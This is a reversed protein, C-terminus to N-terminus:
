ANTDGGLVMGISSYGIFHHVQDTADRRFERFYNDKVGIRMNFDGFWFVFGADGVLTRTNRVQVGNYQEVMGAGLSVYQDFYFVKDMSFRFKGYLLNAGIQADYRKTIFAADPFVEEDEWLRKSSSNLTNYVKSGSVTTYIRDNFFYYLAGGAEKSDVFSSGNTTQGAMLSFGYANTLPRLRNQIVYSREAGAKEEAPLELDAVSNALDEAQAPSFWVLSSLLVIVNALNGM